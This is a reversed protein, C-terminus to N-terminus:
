HSRILTAYPGEVGILEEHTGRQVVKGRELVIIEDCDRITSLRHAVILCTCGRRRVNDDVIKETNADLASTAEDLILINPNGVLARAIELRQRQGGSFNAGGEAATSEYGRSRSAIDDHICADKAAETVCVADLTDDWMTLNERISGEFMFIDQDVVAVSNTLLSRPYSHRPRGDLLIEGSWPEYLGSVLKAVTSKGSGSAGVLAVRDGPKLTVCFDEILPAELKNYGFTINRLELQGALRIQDPEKQESEGGPGEIERSFQSDWPYQLVDNLRNMDGETEQLKGGLDVLNKVPTIFSSMLSQFAVLMGISLHGNMVRLAGVSLIALNNLTTLLAPVSSLYQSSLGLEQQANLVKAQYGSWQAFFDSESGTAKLTEIMQLGNMTTGMLKGQEQLLKQNTNVRRQSVFKLAAINLLASAVGIFTLILDYQLMLIAFFSIQLLSLANNALDGSLLQAVRDNTQVRNGVEGGFRQAFFDAPLRLVHRFFKASSSLALKTELRLLYYAQIWSLALRMLATLTMVLLLPRIWGTMQKVLIDDLFVMSFTPIVLGPIVLFLGALTVYVLAAASGSLRNRLSGLLGPKSGGKTFDPGPEFTLVVGTFSQDFEEESVVRQGNGPDNIYVKGKRIGELVVFHNFNWFIIMPLTLGQLEQPEKRFGKAVLGYKRAAKVMNSAKSGDRSVGCEIRLEELPVIRGYYALIMALAAAGCEVAEMQLVTPTRVRKNHWRQNPIDIV